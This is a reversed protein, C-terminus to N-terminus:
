RVALEPIYDGPNRAVWGLDSNSRVEFYLSSRREDMPDALISAIEEGSSVQDGAAVRLNALNAYRTQLGQDHNIVVLLGLTEHTGAYAVTGAGVALVAQEPIAALVVGSNFVLRDETPHPQWGFSVLLDAPEAFPYGDLPDGVPNPSPAAVAGPLGSVGPIFVRRPVTASCGNIEFLVDARVQYTSALTQWTSGAPTTVEVGNFPPIRVTQGPSLANGTLAPNMLRVTAPLLGYQNALSEVTEGAVARHTQVRELAPVPCLNSPAAPEISQALAPSQAFATSYGGLAIAWGMLLGFQQWRGNHARFTNKKVISANLPM